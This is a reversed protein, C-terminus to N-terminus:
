QNSEADLPLDPRQGAPEDIEARPTHIEGSRREAVSHHVGEVCAWHRRDIRTSFGLRRLHQECAQPTYPAHVEVKIARVYPAWDSGDLLLDRKGGEVDVKM